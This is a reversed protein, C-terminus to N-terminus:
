NNESVYTRLFSIRNSIFSKLESVQYDLNYGGGGLFPDLYYAQKIYLATSDIIPFLVDERFYNDLDYQVELLYKEKVAPNQILKDFLTNEGALGTENDSDFSRDFDWPFFKYPATITTRQMYYNNQFADYNNTISTIAHYIIYNDIDVYRGLSQEINTISCTDIANIFEFLHDYNNDDPLKKDYTFRPHEPSDFSFNSNFLAKYIEYVPINRVRFFDEDIRETMLYLGKDRNNIKLFVHKNRFVPIGRLRYLRSVITTHIMTPDLSQSSLSFTNLGEIERYNNLYIRYSWRPHRRSGGGSSRIYGSSTERNYTFKAPVETETTKTQLLNYYEDEDIFVEIVPMDTLGESGNYMVQDDCSSFILIFILIATNYIKGM